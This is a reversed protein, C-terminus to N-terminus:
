GQHLEELAILAVEWVSLSKDQDYYNNMAQAFDNAGTHGYPYGSKQMVSLLDWAMSVREDDTTTGYWDPEFLSQYHESDDSSYDDPMLRENAQTLTPELVTMAVDWVSLSKDQDYYDNMMQAMDGSGLTGVPTGHVRLYNLIDEAMYIRGDDTNEGYWDPEYLDSYYSEDNRVAFEMADDSILREELAYLGIDWVTEAGYMDFYNNMSQAFDNAPYSGVPYGAYRYIYLLEWAMYIRQDDTTDGYWDNKGMDSFYDVYGDAFVTTTLTFMMLICLFVSLLRKM